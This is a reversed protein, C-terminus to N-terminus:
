NKGFFQFFKHNKVSIKVGHSDTFEFVQSIAEDFFEFTKQTNKVLVIFSDAFFPQVADVEFTCYVWHYFIKLYLRKDPGFPFLCALVFIKLNSFAM